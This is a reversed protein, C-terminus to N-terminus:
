QIQVPTKVYESVEESARRIFIAYQAFTDRKKQNYEGWSLKGQFLEIRYGDRAPRMTSLEYEYMKRSLMGGIKQVDEIRNFIDDSARTFGLMAQKQPENITTTDSLQELTLDKTDCPSKEIYLRYEEKRCLDYFESKLNTLERETDTELDWGLDLMCALFNKRASEQPTQNAKDM